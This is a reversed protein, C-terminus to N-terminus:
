KLEGLIRGLNLWVKRYEAKMGGLSISIANIIQHRPLNPNANRAVMLLQREESTQPTFQPDFDFVDDISCNLLKCLKPLHESPPIPDAAKSSKWRNFNRYDVGIIEALQKASYDSNKILRTLNPGITNKLEAKDPNTKKACMFYDWHM